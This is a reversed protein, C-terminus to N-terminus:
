RFAFFPFLVMFALLALGLLIFFGRVLWRILLARRPHEALRSSDMEQQWHQLKAVDGTIPMDALSNKPDRDKASYIPPRQRYPQFM